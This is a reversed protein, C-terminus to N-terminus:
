AFTKGSLAIDNRDNDRIHVYVRDAAVGLEAGLLDTIEAAITNNKSGGVAGISDIGVYAAPSGEAGMTMSPTYTVFAMVYGVPKSLLKAVAHAVKATFDQSDASRVNTKIEVVPM